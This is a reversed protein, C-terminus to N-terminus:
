SVEKSFQQATAVKKLNSRCNAELSTMSSQIDAANFDFGWRQSKEHLDRKNKAVLAQFFSTVNARAHTPTVPNSNSTQM